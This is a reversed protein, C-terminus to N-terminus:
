LEFGGFDIPDSSAPLTDLDYFMKELKEKDEKSVRCIVKDTKFTAIEAYARNLDATLKVIQKQYDDKMGKYLEEHIKNIREIDKDGHVQAIFFGVCGCVLGVASVLEVIEVINM